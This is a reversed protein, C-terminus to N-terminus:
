KKYPLVIVQTGIPLITNLYKADNVNIRVCGHSENRGTLGEYRGHIGQGKTHFRMYYPMRAGCKRKSKCELPYRSSRKYQNSKSLIKWTGVPTGCGRGKLEKEPCRAQGGNAPGSILVKNNEELRWEKKNLDIVLIPNNLYM